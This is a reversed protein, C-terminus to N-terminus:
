TTFRKFWEVVTKASQDKAWVANEDSLDARTAFGHGVGSFLQAHYKAKNTALIELARNRSAVPFAADLEATSLLLPKTLKNFHDETVGSPHAFAGAVVNDTASIELVYPGGFCYGVAAFKADAGYQKKVAETWKPLSEDAQARSKNIWATQNFGPEGDHAQIPDGFFYDIGLVHFGESAFYDQLLQNNIYFPSYIDAFFLIVKKPGTTSKAPKSYYTPVGAVTVNTGTIKGDHKFGQACDPGVEPALIPSASSLALAPISHSLALLALLGWNLSRVM